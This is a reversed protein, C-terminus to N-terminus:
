VLLLHHIQLSWCHYFATYFYPSSVIELGMHSIASPFLVMQFSSYIYLSLAVAVIIPGLCTPHLPDPFIKRVEM